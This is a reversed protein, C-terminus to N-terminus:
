LEEIEVNHITEDFADLITDGLERVRKEVFDETLRECPHDDEDDFVAVSFSVKIVRMVKSKVQNGSSPLQRMWKDAVAVFPALPQSKTEIM